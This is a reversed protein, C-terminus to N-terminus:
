KTGTTKEKKKQRLGAIIDEIKDDDVKKDRLLEGGEDKEIKIENDGQGLTVSRKGEKRAKQRAKAKKTGATTSSSHRACRSHECTNDDHSCEENSEHHDDHWFKATFGCPKGRREPKASPGLPHLCIFKDEKKTRPKYKIEKREKNSGKSKTTVAHDGAKSTSVAAGNIYLSPSRAPEPINDSLEKLAAGKEKENSFKAGYKTAWDLFADGMEQIILFRIHKYSDAAVSELIESIKIKDKNSM